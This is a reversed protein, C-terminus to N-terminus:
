WHHRASEVHAAIDDIFLSQHPVVGAKILAHKFIDKGPKAINIEYSLICVDFLDLTPYKARIHHYHIECTNSILVLQINQNHLEQLLSTMEKKEEFIDSAALIFAEHDFSSNLHKELIHILQKTSINGIEYRPWLNHVEVLHILVEPSTNCVKSLQSWMKDHSFSVLVNGLDFFCTTIKSM